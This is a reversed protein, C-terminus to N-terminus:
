KLGYSIIAWYFNVDDKGIYEVRNVVGGRAEIEKIEANIMGELGRLITGSVFKVQM